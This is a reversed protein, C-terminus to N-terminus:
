SQIDVTQLCVHAWFLWAPYKRQKQKMQATAKGRETILIDTGWDFLWAPSRILCRCLSLYIHM